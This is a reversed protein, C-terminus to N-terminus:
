YSEKSIKSNKKKFKSVSMTAEEDHPLDMILSFESAESLEYEGMKWMLFDKTYNKFKSTHDNSERILNMRKIPSEDDKKNFLSQGSYQRSINKNNMKLTSKKFVLKKLISLDVSSEVKKPLKNLSLKM